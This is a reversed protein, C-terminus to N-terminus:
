PGFIQHTRILFADHQGDDIICPFFMQTFEIVQSLRNLSGGILLFIGQEDIFKLRKFQEAGHDIRYVFLNTPTKSFPCIGM